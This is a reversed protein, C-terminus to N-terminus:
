MRTGAVAAVALRLTRLALRLTGPEPMALLDLLLRTRATLPPPACTACGDPAHGVVRRVAEALGAQARPGVVVVGAARRVVADANGPAVGM